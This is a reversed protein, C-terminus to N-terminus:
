GGCCGAKAAGAFAPEPKWEASGGPLLAMLHWVICFDDYPQFGAESVRVIAEGQRRFVSVGPSLSGRDDAYGMDAAFSTGRHSVMPFRWGRAEALRQQQTPTDPSSVVFAARSALQRYVGNYGDAWLTCYSCGAGMNHIVFLDDKDGFLASLSVPGEPTAFVYDEVPQPAMDDQVERMEERLEAIRARLGAIREMGDTYKM